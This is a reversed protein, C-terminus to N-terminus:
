TKKRRYEELLLGSAKDIMFALFMNRSEMVRKYNDFDEQTIAGENMIKSWLRLEADSLHDPNFNARLNPNTRPREGEGIHPDNLIEKARESESLEMKYREQEWWEKVQARLEEIPLIKSQPARDLQEM